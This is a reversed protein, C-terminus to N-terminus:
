QNNTFNSKLGADKEVQVSYGIKTLKVVVDPSISVRNENLLVEKLVGIIM